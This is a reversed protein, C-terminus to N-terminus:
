KAQPTKPIGNATDFTGVLPVGMPGVPIYIVTHNPSGVMAKQAEIAQYQLYNATLENRIKAMARAIGEAELEKIKLETAQQELRQTAALKLAVSNAVAEPYQINGVVITKIQFPTGKTLAQMKQMIVDGILPINNKIQLGDLTQVEARSFTRLPERIYNDYADKVISEPTSRDELTSFKEVFEKVKDPDINFLVHVRFEIRLDDKALVADKGYFEEHYTYPTISVNMVSAMWTRTYSTPGTQIGLFQAKGFIARQSVYGVYGAPTYPNSSNAFWIFGAAVIAFFGLTVFSAGFFSAFSRPSYDRDM